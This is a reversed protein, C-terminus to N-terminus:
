WIRISKMKSVTCIRTGTYIAVNCLIRSSTLSLGCKQLKEKYVVPGISGLGLSNCSMCIDVYVFAFLSKHERSGGVVQRYLMLIHTMPVMLRIM